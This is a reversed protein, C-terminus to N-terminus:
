VVVLGFWAAILGAAICAATIYAGAGGTAASRGASSIRIGPAGTGERASPFVPPAVRGSVGSSVATMAAPTVEYEVVSQHM